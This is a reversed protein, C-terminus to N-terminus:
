SDSLDRPSPGTQARSLLAAAQRSSLREPRLLLRLLLLLLLVPARSSPRMIYLSGAPSLASRASRPAGPARHQRPYRLPKKFPPRRRGSPEEAAKRYKSSASDGPACPRRTRGAM